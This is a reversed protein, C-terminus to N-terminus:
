ATKAKRSRIKEKLEEADLQGLKQLKEKNRTEWYARKKKAQALVQEYEREVTPRNEELWALAKEIMPYPLDLRMALLRPTWGGKLYDLIEYLTIRTGAIVLGRETRVVVPKSM